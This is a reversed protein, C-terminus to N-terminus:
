WFLTGARRIWSSTASAWARPPGEALHGAVTERGGADLSRAPGSSKLNDIGLIIIYSIPTTYTHTYIYIYMCTHIYIYISIYLSLSVCIERNIYIYIYVRTYVYMHIYIYIYMCVYM